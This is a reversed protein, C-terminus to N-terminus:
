NWVNYKYCSTIIPKDPEPTDSSHMNREYYSLEGNKNLLIITQTRTGYYRGISLVNSEPGNREIPPIFISNRLEMIKADFDKGEYISRNFTDTKLIDFCGEVLKSEDYNNEVSKKILSILLKEGMKVKKWPENYLSNSLGFTTKEAIEREDDFESESVNMSRNDEFIKGHHGRNSLINLHEVKNTKPNLNLTGYLLSFGGIKTIDIEGQDSEMNSMLKDRWEEDSLDSKLYSLPLVGRSVESLTSETDIDRYNVLVAIKGTTTIGIWTGHEPRAMDLPTLIQVKENLKRFRAPDTPRKFYEDRNSLLIFPFDPHSTTAITICM